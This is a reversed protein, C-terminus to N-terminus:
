LAPPSTVCLGRAATRGPNRWHHALPAAFYVGEGAELRHLEGGIHAEIVGELVYLFREVGPPSEESQTARGPALTLVLPMMRKALVKSTLMEFTAGKGYAFRDGAGSTKRHVVVLPTEAAVERYLDPLPVGLAKAIAVHSELTGTMRGTEIRSLTALAVGSLKSLEALTLKAQQRLSRVRAGLANTTATTM